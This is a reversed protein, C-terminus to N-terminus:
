KSRLTELAAIVDASHTAPSVATFVAAVKGEPDIVFTNRSARRGSSAPNLSGYRASVAGDTDALLRFSLGEKACFEKHSAVDDISVGLIVADRKEYEAIDRQFNQAELTCGGTFNKPYFYLVVWKGKMEELSTPTGENSTLRFSPAAQGVTPLSGEPARASNCAALCLTAILLPHLARRHTM